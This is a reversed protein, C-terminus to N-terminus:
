QNLLSCHTSFLIEILIHTLCLTTATTPLRRPNNLIKYTHTEQIFCHGKLIKTQKSKITRSCILCEEETRTRCSQIIYISLINKNQTYNSTISRKPPMSHNTDSALLCRLQLSHLGINPFFFDNTM